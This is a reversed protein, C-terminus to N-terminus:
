FAPASEEVKLYPSSAGDGKQTTCNNWRAHCPYSRWPPSALRLPTHRPSLPHTQPPSPNDAGSLADVLRENFISYPRAPM